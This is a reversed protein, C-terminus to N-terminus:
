VTLSSNQITTRENQNIIPLPYNLIRNSSYEQIQAREYEDPSILYKKKNKLIILLFNKRKTIYLHILGYKFSWFLGFPRIPAFPGANFGCLRIFSFPPLTSLEKIDEIQNFAIRINRIIRHIIVHKATVKYGQPRYFEGIAIVLALALILEPLQYSM